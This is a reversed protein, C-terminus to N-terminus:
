SMNFKSTSTSWNHTCTSNTKGRCPHRRRVNGGDDFKNSQFLPTIYSKMMFKQPVPVPPLPAYKHMCAKGCFIEILVRAVFTYLFCNEFTQTFRPTLLSLPPLIENIHCRKIVIAQNTCACFWAGAYVRTIIIIANWSFRM